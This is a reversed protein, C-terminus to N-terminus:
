IETIETIETVFYTCFKGVTIAQLTSLMPQRSSGCRWNRATPWSAVLTHMAVAVFVCKLSNGSNNNNNNNNNSHIATMCLCIM